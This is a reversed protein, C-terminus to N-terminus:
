RQVALLPDGLRDRLLRDLRDVTTLEPLTLPLRPDPRELIGWRALLAKSHSPQAVSRLEALVPAILDRVVERAEGAPVSLLRELWPALVNAAGSIAGTWGADLASVLLTEDGVYLRQHAPLATRYALLNTHDGSSDKIGVIRPHGALATLWDPDLGHGTMRPFHYLLVPLPSADLVAEYWAQLGESTAQRFYYPGMLLVGTAGAAEAQRCLWRAEDLSPTAIGLWVEANPWALPVALRVLDRREVASLSPGEGNTGALVVGTCGAAQYWSFLRALSPGDIRGREDFPTVAAPMLAAPVDSPM